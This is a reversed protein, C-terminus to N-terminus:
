QKNRKILERAGKIRELTKELQEQICPDCIETGIPEFCSQDIQDKAIRGTCGKETCAVPLKRKKSDRENTSTLIYSCTLRDIRPLQRRLFAALNREIQKGSEKEAVADCKACRFFVEQIHRSMVRRYICYLIGKIFIGNEVM